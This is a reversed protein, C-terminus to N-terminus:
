DSQLFNHLLKLQPRVSSHNVANLENALIEMPKNVSNELDILFCAGFVEDEIQWTLYFDVCVM